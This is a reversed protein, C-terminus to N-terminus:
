QVMTNTLEKTELTRSSRSTSDQQGSGRLSTVPVVSRSVAVDAVRVLDAVRDVQMKVVVRGRYCRM